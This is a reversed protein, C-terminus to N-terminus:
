SVTPADCPRTWAQTLSIESSEPSRCPRADSEGRPVSEPSRCPRADSEVRAEQPGSSEAWVTSRTTGQAEGWCRGIQGTMELFPPAPPASPSSRPPISTACAHSFPSLGEKPTQNLGLKKNAPWFQSIELYNAWKTATVRQYGISSNRSEM